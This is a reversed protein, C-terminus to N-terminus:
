AGTAPERTQDDGGLATLAVLTLQFQVDIHPRKRSHVPLPGRARYGYIGSALFLLGHGREDGDTVSIDGSVLLRIGCDTVTCVCMVRFQAPFPARIHDEPVGTWTRFGSPPPTWCSRPAYM